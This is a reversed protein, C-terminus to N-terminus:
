LLSALKWLKMIGVSTIPKSVSAIRFLNDNTIATNDTTSMKGYSKVYVLKDDKTIALSVGPIAYTNMFALVANDM